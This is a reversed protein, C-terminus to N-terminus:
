RARAAAPRMVQMLWWRHGEPDAVLCTRHSDYEEGYDQTAPEVAITGGAARARECAADVNDVLLCLTQTNKGGVHGPAACFDRAGREQIRKVTGVMIVGNGFTLESHEIVGGEGEVKLRVEFGLARVLWDIAAAGDEYYVGSSIKPWGQQAEGM